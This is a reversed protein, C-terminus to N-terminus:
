NPQVGGDLLCSFRGITCELLDRDSADLCQHAQRAHLSERAIMVRVDNDGLVFKMIDGGGVDAEGWSDLKGTKKM